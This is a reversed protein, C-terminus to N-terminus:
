LALSYHIILCIWDILSFVPPDSESELPLVMVEPKATLNTFVGDNTQLPVPPITVTIYELTVEEKPSNRFNAQSYNPPPSLPHSDPIPPPTCKSDAKIGKNYPTLEFVEAGDHTQEVYKLIERRNPFLDDTEEAM